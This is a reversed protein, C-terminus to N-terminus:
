WLNALLSMLSVAAVAAAGAEMSAGTRLDVNGSGALGTGVLIVEDGM